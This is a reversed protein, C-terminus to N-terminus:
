IKQSVVQTLSQIRDKIGVAQSMDLSSLNGLEDIAKGVSNVGIEVFGKINTAALASSHALKTVEDAVM